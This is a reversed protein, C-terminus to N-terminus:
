GDPEEDLVYVTDENFSPVWLSGNAAVVDFSSRGVPRVSTLVQYPWDTRILVSAMGPGYSGVMYLTDDVPLMGAVPYGATPVRAVIKNSRADIQVVGVSRGLIPEGAGPGASTGIAWNSVWVRDGDIVVSGPSSQRNPLVRIQKILHGDDPALRLVTGVATSIWVGKEDAALGIGAQSPTAEAPPHPYPVRRVVDNNLPDIKVAADQTAVWMGGGAPALQFPAPGVDITDMVSDDGPNIRTVTGDLGSTVWVSGFGEKAALPGAGVSIPDAIERTEPNIRVVHGDWTTVWLSGAILSAGSPRGLPIDLKAL